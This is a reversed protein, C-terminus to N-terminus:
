LGSSIAGVALRVPGTVLTSEFLEDARTRRSAAGHTPDFAARASAEIEDAETEGDIGVFKQADDEADM